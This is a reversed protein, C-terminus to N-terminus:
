EPAAPGASDTQEHPEGAKEPTTGLFIEVIQAMRAADRADLVNTGLRAVLHRLEPQALARRIAVDDTGDERGGFYDLSVGFATALQQVTELTPNANRGNRLRWVHNATIAGNTLREVDENTLPQGRARAREFLVNLREAFMGEGM